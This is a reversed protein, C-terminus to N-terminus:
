KKWNDIINYFNGFQSQLSEFQLPTLTFGGYWVYEYAYTIFRFEKEGPHNIMQSIYEQNTGQAYFRILEKDGAKKLAKLYMYRLASRFDTLDIAERIKQELNEYTIDTDDQADTIKKKPSSYFMHLRNETIIKYLAYLLVSALLLMLFIRFWRSGAWEFIYDLFNKKHKVPTEIWYEPDNAYRFVKDQKFATIASDPITRLIVSDEANSKYRETTDTTTTIKNNNEESYSVTDAISVSDPLRQNDQAPCSYSIM